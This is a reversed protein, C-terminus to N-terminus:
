PPSSAPGRGPLGREPERRLTRTRSGAARGSRGLCGGGALGPGAPRRRRSVAAREGLQPGAGPTGSIETGARRRGPAPLPRHGPAGGLQPEAGWVRVGAGLSGRGVCMPWCGM